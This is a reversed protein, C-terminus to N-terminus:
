NLFLIILPMRIFIYYNHLSDIKHEDLQYDPNRKALPAVTRFYDTFTAVSKGPGDLIETLSNYYDLAKGKKEIADTTNCSLLIFLSSVLSFFCIIKFM